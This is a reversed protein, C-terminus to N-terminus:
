FCLHRFPLHWMRFPSIMSHRHHRDLCSIHSLPQLLSHPQQRESKTSLRRLHRDPRSYDNQFTARIIIHTLHRNNTPMSPRLHLDFMSSRRTRPLPFSLSWRRQDPQFLTQLQHQILIAHLCGASRALYTRFFQIDEEFTGALIKDACLRWVCLSRMHMLGQFTEHCLISDPFAGTVLCPFHPELGTFLFAELAFPSPDAQVALLWAALLPELTSLSHAFPSCPSSKPACSVLAQISRQLADVTLNGLKWALGIPACASTPFFWSRLFCDAGLTVAGAAQQGSPMFLPATDSLFKSYSPPYVHRSLGSSHVLLPCSEDSDPMASLAPLSVDWADNLNFGPPDAASFSGLTSVSPASTLRLVPDCFKQTTANWHTVVSLLFGVPTSRLQHLRDLDFAPTAVAPPNWQELTDKLASHLVAPTSYFPSSAGHHKAVQKPVQHGFQMKVKKAATAPVGLVVLPLLEDVKGDGERFAVGAKKAMGVSCIGEPNEGFFEPDAAFLPMVLLTLLPCHLAVSLFSFDFLLVDFPRQNYCRLLLVAFLSWLICIM